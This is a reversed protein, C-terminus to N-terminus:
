TMNKSPSLSSTKKQEAKFSYIKNSKAPSQYKHCSSNGFRIKPSNTERNNYM